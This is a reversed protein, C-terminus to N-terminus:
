DTATDGRKNFFANLYTLVKSSPEKTEIVHEHKEVPKGLYQDLVYEPRAARIKDEFVQTIEADFIARRQERLLTPRLKQGKKLGSGEPKKQGKVFVM